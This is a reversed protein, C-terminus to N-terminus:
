AATPAGRVARAIAFRNPLSASAYGPVALPASYMRVTGAPNSPRALTALSPSPRRTCPPVSPAGYFHIDLNVSALHVGLVQGSASLCRM